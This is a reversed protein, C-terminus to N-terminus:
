IIVVCLSANDEAGKEFVHKMILTSTTKASANITLAALFQNSLTPVNYICETIGDTMLLACDGTELDFTQYFIAKEVPQRERLGLYSFAGLWTPTAPQDFVEQGSRCIILRSDGYSFANLQKDHLRAVIFSTEPTQDRDADMVAKGYSSHLQQQLAATQAVAEDRSKPFTEGAKLWYNVTDDAAGDGWHGDAICLLTTDALRLLGVRDENMVKLLGTTTMLQITETVALSEVAHPIDAQPLIVPKM